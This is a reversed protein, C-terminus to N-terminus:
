MLAIPLLNPLHYGLINFSLPESVNTSPSLSFIIESYVNRTKMLQQEKNVVARNVGALVHFPSVLQLSFHTSECGLSSLTETKHELSGYWCRDSAICFNSFAQTSSIVHLSRPMLHVISITYWKQLIINATALPQYNLLVLMPQIVSNIVDLHFVAKDPICWEGLCGDLTRM